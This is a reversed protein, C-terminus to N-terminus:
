RWWRHEGLKLNVESDDTVFVVADSSGDEMESAAVSYMAGEMIQHVVNGFKRGRAVMVSGMSEVDGLM